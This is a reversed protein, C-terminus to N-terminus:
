FPPLVCVNEKLVDAFQRLRDVKIWLNYSGPCAAYLELAFNEIDKRLDSTSISWELHTVLDIFSMKEFIDTLRSYEFPKLTTLDFQQDVSTHQAGSRFPTYLSRGLTNQRFIRLVWQLIMAHSSSIDVYNEKSRQCDLLFDIFSSHHFFINTDRIELLSPVDALAISAKGGELALVREIVCLRNL